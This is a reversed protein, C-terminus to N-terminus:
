AAMWNKLSQRRCIKSQGNKFVKDWTLTLGLVLQDECHGIPTCSIPAWFSFVVVDKPYIGPTGSSITVCFVSLLM